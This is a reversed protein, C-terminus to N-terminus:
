RSLFVCRLLPCWAAAACMWCVSIYRGKNHCNRGLSLPLVCLRNLNCRASPAQPTVPFPPSCDGGLEGFNTYHLNYSCWFRAIVASERRRGDYVFKGAQFFSNKVISAVMFLFVFASVVSCYLSIIWVMRSPNLPQRGLSRM